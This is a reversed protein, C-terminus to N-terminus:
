IDGIHGSKPVTGFDGVMVGMSAEEFRYGSSGSRRVPRIGQGPTAPKRLPLQLRAFPTTSPHGFSPSQM